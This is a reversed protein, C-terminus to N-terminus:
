ILGRRTVVRMFDLLAQGTKTLRGRGYGGCADCEELDGTESATPHYGYRRGGDTKREKQLRGTGNCVSCTVFLDDLTLNM